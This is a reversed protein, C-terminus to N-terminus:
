VERCTGAESYRQVSSVSPSDFASGRVCRRIEERVLGMDELMRDDLHELTQIDVQTTWWKALRELM